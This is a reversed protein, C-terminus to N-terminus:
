FILKKNSVCVDGEEVIYSIIDSNCLCQQSTNFYKSQIHPFDLM